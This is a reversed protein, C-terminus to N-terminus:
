RLQPFNEIKLNKDNNNNNERDKENNNLNEIAMQKVSFYLTSYTREPVYFIEKFIMYKRDIIAMDSIEYPIVM